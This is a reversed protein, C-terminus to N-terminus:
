PNPVSTIARAAIGSRVVLPMGRTGRDTRRRRAGCVSRASLSPRSSISSVRKPTEKGTLSRLWCWYAIFRRYMATSDQPHRQLVRDLTECASPSCAHPVQEIVEPGCPELGPPPRCPGIPNCATSRPIKRGSPPSHPRKDAPPGRHCQEQDFRPEGHRSRSARATIESLMLGAFLLEDEARRASRRPM